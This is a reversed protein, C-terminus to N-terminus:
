VLRRAEDGGKDATLFGDTDTENEKLHEKPTVVFPTVTYDGSEDYTRTGHFRLENVGYHVVNESEVHMVEMSM